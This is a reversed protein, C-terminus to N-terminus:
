DGADADREKRVVRRAKLEFRPLAGSEVLVVEPKFHLRDRIASEIRGPLGGAPISSRNEATEGKDIKRVARRIKAFLKPITGSHFGPKLLRLMSEGHDGVIVPRLTEPRNALYLRWNSRLEWVLFGFIGPILWVISAAVANATDADGVIAKILNNFPEGPLAMPLIIKHSVTVVPFHKIPNIQPEILLTVAFTVVFSVVAWVLGFVAKTALKLRSEGSRFRLWDGVAYLFREVVEIIKHFASMVTEFMAIFVRTRIQFWTQEVWDATLEEVNRGMRSNVVGTLLLYVAGTMMWSPDSYFELAPLAFCFLITLVLPVLVFRRLFVVPGSRLLARITRSRIAWKPMDILVAGLARLLWTMLRGVITRFLASHVLALLFTGLALIIRWSTLHPMGVPLKELLHGFFSLIMFAGGYPILVFLTLWRGLKTGFAVSSLRQLWRLYFEGRRYVGDLEVSLKRDAQLLKDGSLFEKPGSVDNLKLWNRSVADRLMAMNAFGRKVIGDLIEEIIKRM